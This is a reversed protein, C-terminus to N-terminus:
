ATRSDARGNGGRGPYVALYNIWARNEGPADFTEIWYRRFDAMMQLIKENLSESINAPLADAKECARASVALTMACDNMEGLFKQLKRLSALRRELAPGYLPSFLELTYRFKKTKIRFRHFAEPPCDSEVLKRGAAFFRGALAPLRDRANGAPSKSVSWGSKGNARM